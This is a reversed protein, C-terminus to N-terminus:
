GAHEIVVGRKRRANDGTVIISSTATADTPAIADRVSVWSMTLSRSQRDIPPRVILATGEREERFFAMAAGDTFASTADSGMNAFDRVGDYYGDVLIDAGCVIPRRVTVTSGGAAPLQIPANSTQIIHVGLYNDVEANQFFQSDFRGQTAIKYDQDGFIQRMSVYDCVMVYRGDPMAPVQRNKLLAVADLIQAQSFTDASTLKTYNSKANPRLIVCGDSAVISDGATVAQGTVAALTLVGSAGRGAVSTGIATFIRATVNGGDQAVGIVSVVVGAAPGGTAYITAAIPNSPSVNTLVGNVYLSAFGTIDDVNLTTATSLAASRVFSNGSLYGEKVATLNAGSPVLGGFLCNRLYVDVSQGAQIINTKMSHDFRDVISQGKTLLDISQTGQLQQLTLTFQEVNWQQDTMGNDLGTLTTPDIPDPNASLLGPRSMTFTDGVSMPIAKHEAMNYYQINPALYQELATKLYNKQLMNQIATPFNSQSGPM